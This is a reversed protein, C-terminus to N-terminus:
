ILRTGGAKLGAEYLKGCAIFMPLKTGGLIIDSEKAMDVMDMGPTKGRVFIICKIDLLEATRIVQPNVLGTLLLVGEKVFAMVDSMLDSGCASIIELGAKDEGCFFQGDLLSVAESVTM